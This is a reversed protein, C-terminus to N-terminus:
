LNWLLETVGADLVLPRMRGEEGSGWADASTGIDLSTATYGVRALAAIQDRPASGLELVRAPPPFDSQILEAIYASRAQAEISLNGTTTM